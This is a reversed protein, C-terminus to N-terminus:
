GMLDVEYATIVAQQLDTMGVSLRAQRKQVDTSACGPHLQLTSGLLAADYLATLLLHSPVAVTSREPSGGALASRLTLSLRQAAEVASSGVYYDGAELGAYVVDNLRRYDDRIRVLLGPALTMTRADEIVPWGGPTIVIEFMGVPLRPIYRAALRDTLRAMPLEFNVVVHEAGITRDSVNITCDIADDRVSTMSDISHKYLGMFGEARWYAALQGDALRRVMVHLGDPEGAMALTEADGVKATKTLTTRCEELLGGFRDYDSPDTM